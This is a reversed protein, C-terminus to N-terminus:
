LEIREMQDKEIPQVPIWIRESFLRSKETYVELEYGGTRKYGNEKLWKRIFAWTNQITNVFDTQEVTLTDFFAYEGEPVTLVTTGTRDGMADSERIGIYYELKELDSRYLSVGFDEVVAGGSLIQSWGGANYRNWFLPPYPEDSKYVVLRVSSRHVVKGRICYEDSELQFRNYLKLSNQVARFEGPLIHHERKFARSFNEKSNFGFEFAIDSISRKESAMARVIETIRRKRIYDAPTLGVVQKFIRLFHFESYGACAALQGADIESKLNNEIFDLARQVAEHYEMEM